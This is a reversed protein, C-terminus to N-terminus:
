EFVLECSDSARVVSELEVVMEQSNREQLPMESFSARKLHAANSLIYKAVVKEEELRQRYSRWVFTELHSLLCEPVKNPQSWKKCAVSPDWYEYCSNDRLKLVQLRPSADLMLLLLNWWEAKYTNLELNVLQYFISGTPFTIELPSLALSLTKVSTLSVLLKEDVIKSVNVIRAEVLEPANEIVCCQRSEVGHIELYKLSPVNIVYGGAMKGDNSDFITLRQLSPVEVTFIEVGDEDRNVVLNELNPCGSLLNVLSSEDKYDVSQLRLTKLSKLCAQSPVYVLVWAGLELTELTESHFMGIPFKFNTVGRESSFYLSLERVHRAYAIGIWMGIDAARSKDVRFHIRLSELVPSKHSLLVKSVTESFADRESPNYEYVFDNFDLKPVLKWLSRWQKSLASTAVADKTPLLSLIHLHLAEPLHNIRDENSLCRKM